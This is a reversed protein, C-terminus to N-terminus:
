AAEELTTELDLTEMALLLNTEPRKMFELKPVTKLLVIRPGMPLRSKLLKSITPPMPPKLDRLTELLTIKPRETAAMRTNPGKTGPWSFKKPLRTFDRTNPDLPDEKSAETFANTVFSTKSKQIPHPTKTEPLELTRKVFTEMTKPFKGSATLSNAPSTLLAVTEHNRSALTVFPPCGTEPAVTVMAFAVESVGIRDKEV